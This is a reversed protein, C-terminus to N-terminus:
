QGPENPTRMAEEYDFLDQVPLGTEEAAGEAECSWNNDKEPGETRDYQGSAPNYRLGAGSLADEVRSVLEDRDKKSRKTM